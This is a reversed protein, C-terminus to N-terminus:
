KPNNHLREAIDELLLTPSFDGQYHYDVSCPRKVWDWDIDEINEFYQMYAPNYYPFDLISKSNTLLKRNYVVAEYPRLTLNSRGPQLVELMCQAHLQRQLVEPYPLVQGAQLLTAMPAYQELSPAPEVCVLDMKCTINNQRCKSLIADLMPIRAKTVGCCFYLQNDAAIRSAQENKSYLTNWHIFQYNKADAADYSYILDFIQQKQLYHAARSVGSDVVDLYFLVYKINNWLKKYHKLTGALYPHYWLASNPFIVYVNESHPCCQVLTEYLAGEEYALFDLHGKTVSQVKTKMLLNKWRGVSNNEVLLTVNSREAIDQFMQQYMPLYSSGDLMVIYHNNIHM